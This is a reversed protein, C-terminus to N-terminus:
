DEKDIDNLFFLASSFSHQEVEVFEDILLHLCSLSNILGVGTSLEDDHELNLEILLCVM